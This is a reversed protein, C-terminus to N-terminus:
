SNLFEPILVKTDKYTAGHTPFVQTLLPIITKFSPVDFPEKFNELSQLIQGSQEIQECFKFTHESARTRLFNTSARM